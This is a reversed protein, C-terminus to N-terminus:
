RAAASAPSARTARRRRGGHRGARRRLDRPGRLRLQARRARRGAQAGRLRRLALRRQRAHHRDRPRGRRAGDPPGAPETMGDSRRERASWARRTGGRTLTKLGLRSYVRPDALEPDQEAEIVIWGAYGIDALARWCRRSTSTATAPRPSCAPWCATWSARTARRAVQTSCRAASTRPLARPRRARSPRPDAGGADVGGLAAHGTDVVFGVDAGTHPSSPTWTTRAARRRHRPPLPLRVQLGQAEIYDAVATLRQASRAALRRRRAAADRSLPAAATATSPTAPRPPSSCRRAWAGEAAGPAAAAAAIEAEADRALLDTSYWGGILDLGHRALLPACRRRIARSRAAWSSAPSASRRPTPSSPRWAAHRRGARAHRRQGLRDPQRRLPHDHRADAADELRAEYAARAARSRRRARLGGAVAVDWWAGGAETSAAPDTDIVIVYTRTAAARARWAGGGARRHRGGEGRRAGLSAAHAAFDIEPLTAHRADALLNNFPAGGVPQQLRNICGFGRNDLVVITLKLGLMVSTAIESNLMLYSGDGVM